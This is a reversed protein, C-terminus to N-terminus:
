SEEIQNMMRQVADAEPEPGKAAKLAALTQVLKDLFKRCPTCQATHAMAYLRALWGARGEATRHLIADMHPCHEDPGHKHFPWRM